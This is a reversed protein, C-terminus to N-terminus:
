ISRFRFGKFRSFFLNMQMLLPHRASCDRCQKTLHVRSPRVPWISISVLSNCPWDRAKRLWINIRRWSNSSKPLCIFSWTSRESCVNTRCRAGVVVSSSPLAYTVYSCLQPPIYSFHLVCRRLSAAVLLWATAIMLCDILWDDILWNFHISKWWDSLQVERMTWATACAPFSLAHGQVTYKWIKLPVMIWVYQRWWLNFYIKIKIIIIM